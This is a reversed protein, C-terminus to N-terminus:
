RFIFHLFQEQNVIFISQLAQNRDLVDVFDEVERMRAFIPAPPQPDARRDADVVVFPRIRQDLGADINQHDIRGMPM